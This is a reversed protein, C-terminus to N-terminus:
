YNTLPIKSTLRCFDREKESEDNAVVVLTGGTGEDYIRYMEKIADDQDFALIEDMIKGAYYIIYPKTRTKPKTM